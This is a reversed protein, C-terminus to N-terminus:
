ESKVMPAMCSDSPLVFNVSITATMIQGAQASARRCVCVTYIHIYTYIYIYM